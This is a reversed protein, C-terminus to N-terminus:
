SFMRNVKKMFLSKREAKKAESLRYQNVESKLFELHQYLDFVIQMLLDNETQQSPTPSTTEQLQSLTLEVSREEHIEDM